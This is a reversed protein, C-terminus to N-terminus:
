RALNSGRLQEGQPVGARQLIERLLVGEYTNRTGDRETVSLRTRPLRALDAATFCTTKALDGSVCFLTAAQANALEQRVPFAIAPSGIATQFLRRLDINQSTASISYCAAVSIFQGIIFPLVKRAADHRKFNSMKEEM